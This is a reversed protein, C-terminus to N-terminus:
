IADIRSSGFSSLAQVVITIPRQSWARVSLLVFMMIPVSKECLSSHPRITKFRRRLRSQWRPEDLLPRGM